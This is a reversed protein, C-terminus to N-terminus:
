GFELITLLIISGLMRRLGYLIVRAKTINALLLARSYTKKDSNDEHITQERLTTMPWFALGAPMLSLLYPFQLSTNHAIFGSSANAIGAGLFSYAWM